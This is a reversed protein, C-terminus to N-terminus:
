SHCFSTNLKLLWINYKLNVDNYYENLFLFVVKIVHKKGFIPELPRNYTCLIRRKKDNLTTLQAANLKNSRSANQLVEIALRYNGIIM